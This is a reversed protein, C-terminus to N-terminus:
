ELRWLAQSHGAKSVSFLLDAIAADITKELVQEVVCALSYADLLPRGNLQYDIDDREDPTLSLLWTALQQYNRELPRKPNLTAKIAWGSAKTVWTQCKAWLLWGYFVSADAPKAILRDSNPPEITFFEILSILDSQNKFDVDSKSQNLSRIQDSRIPITFNKCNDDVPTTTEAHNDVSNDVPTPDYEPQPSTSFSGSPSATVKESLFLGDHGQWLRLQNLNVQWGSTKGHYTVLGYENLRNLGLKVSPRSMDTWNDALDTETVAAGAIVLAWLVSAANGSLDRSLRKREILTTM